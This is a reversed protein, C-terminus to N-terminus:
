RSELFSPFAERLAELRRFTSFFSVSHLAPELISGAKEKIFPSREHAETEIRIDNGLRRSIKGGSKKDHSQQQDAESKQDIDQSLQKSNKGSNHEEHGPNATPNGSDFNEPGLVFEVFGGGIIGLWIPFVNADMNLFM